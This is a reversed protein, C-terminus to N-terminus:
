YIIEVRSLYGTWDKHASIKVVFYQTNRVQKEQLQLAVTTGDSDVTQDLGSGGGAYIGVNNSTPQVGASYPKVCDGWATSTDDLGTFNPDFPVKLEVNIYKNAGLAGTYFAGTKAVITADGYLKISFTAKSLGTQNRFYRYYTRVNNTLTSYNPNNAPAQLSGGGAANRTDGANGIKFPSIAYGNVTVMGDDHTGGNNMATQSNWTNASSTTNSQSVYNGSVIRYTETNFYENTNLNTSGIAGSYVMFATKSLTSTALDNKLPHGIASDVAVDYKTFLGLGGSISTLNDFLVTGTVHINQEECDASNNLAPLGCFAVASNFTTVGSGTIRTNSISCNTTTSFRLATSSDSYINRYVNAATYTFSGTPRSAFYGIGSQYYKSTHGFNSLAVSSAALDNVAGSPDIIWEVYNTTTDSGDVRHIM